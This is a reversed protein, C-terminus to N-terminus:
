SQYRKRKYNLKGFPNVFHKDTAVLQAEPHKAEMMERIQDEQEKLAYILILNKGADLEDHFKELKKNESAVGTLGGVWAGFLTVLGVLMINIIGPPEVGFVQFYDLLGALLLGGLFGLFAGIFGDRIIDRTELWNSSHIHEKKLGAKDRAIVHLYFDSVGVDHLDDSIRHTSGLDPSLYYLCKM